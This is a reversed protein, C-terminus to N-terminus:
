PGALEREVIALSVFDEGPVVGPWREGPAAPDRFRVNVTLANISSIRQGSRVVFVFAPCYQACRHPQIPTLGSPGNVDNGCRLVKLTVSHPLRGNSTNNRYLHAGGTGFM